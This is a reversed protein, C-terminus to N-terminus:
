SKQVHEGQSAPTVVMDNREFISDMQSSLVDVAKQKHDPSLHSYRLTMAMSKHGALERVTNLDIGSM